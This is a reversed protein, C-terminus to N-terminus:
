VPLFSLSPFAMYLCVIPSSRFVQYRTSV